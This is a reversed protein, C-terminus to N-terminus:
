IGDSRSEAAPAMDSAWSRYTGNVRACAELWDVYAEVLEDVLRERRLINM